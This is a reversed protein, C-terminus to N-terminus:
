LPKTPRAILAQSELGWPRTEDDVPDEERAALLMLFGLMCGISIDAWFWLISGLM